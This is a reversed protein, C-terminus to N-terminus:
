HCTPKSRNDHMFSGIGFASVARLAKDLAAQDTDFWEDWITSGGYEDVIELTWRQQDDLRYIQVDIHSSKDTIRKSLTSVILEPHTHNPM